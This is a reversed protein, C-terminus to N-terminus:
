PQSIEIPIKKGLSRLETTLQNAQYEKYNTEKTQHECM